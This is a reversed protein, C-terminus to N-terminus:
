QVKRRWRQINSLAEQTQQDEVLAFDFEVNETRLRAITGRKIRWGFASILVTVQRAGINIRSGESGLM